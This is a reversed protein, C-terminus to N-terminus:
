PLDGRGRAWALFSECGHKDTFYPTVMGDYHVGYVSGSPTRKQDTLANLRGERRMEDALVFPSSSTPVCRGVQSDLMWWAGAKATPVGLALAAVAALLYKKMQPMGRQKSSSTTVTRETETANSPSGDSEETVSTASNLTGFRNNEAL